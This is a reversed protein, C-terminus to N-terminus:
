PIVTWSVADGEAVPTKAEQVPQVVVAPALQETLTVAAALTVAAKLTLVPEVQELGESQVSPKQTFPTQQEVAHM